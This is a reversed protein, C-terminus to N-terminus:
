KDTESEDSQTNNSNNRSADSPSQSTRGGTVTFTGTKQDKQENDENFRTVEVKYSGNAWGGSPPGFNFNGTGSGPLDVSVEAGPVLDGSKQGEVKDYLLRAKLKTKSMSNAVEANAYVTDTPGFSSTEASVSKDKGLKLSSLNATSANFKCALAVILLCGLALISNFKVTRM